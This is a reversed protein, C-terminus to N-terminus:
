VYTAFQQQMSKVLQTSASCTADSDSNFHLDGALNTWHRQSFELIHRDRFKNLIIEEVHRCGSGEMQENDHKELRATVEEPMITTQGAGWRGQIPDSM